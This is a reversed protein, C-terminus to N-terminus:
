FAVAISFHLRADPQGKGRAYDLALPGVPSRWRAGLGYGQSIQLEPAVDAAGGVDGFLAVGWDNFWHTYEASATAMVRGGVVANGEAVGLSQFAFGRVTQTGGVRFLYEQPIGLRSRSATYGGEVRLSIADHEALPVWIQYRSYGRVFDQDSLLSKGAGGLRLETLSGKMPFLPNDVARRNWLWDIVLAQDTERIGGQPLRREQQWHLGIGTEIGFVTRSRTVGFKDRLTDLGQIQTKEGSAKWALHYGLPNPPTNLEASMTQRNQELVVSSDLRWAQNLFNYSQYNVENRVGNNTSYGIGLSLKRSQAEIIQVKIPVTVATEGADARTSDSTTDLSVVVSSFQPLNQLQAQFALLLDRRYAQGPKFTAYRSVLSEEYRELGSVRLEGFLHRPGSDVVIHLQASAQARDVQAASEVLRATAYDRSAVQALLDAKAEDWSVARLAMGPQLMWSDRLQQVRANRQAEPLSLDGRFEVNVATVLTRSGVIVELQLVGAQSITGLAVKGSFFGETALLEPIERQARRMFAAQEIENTLLKEPLVFHQALLERVVEPAILNVAPTNGAKALAPRPQYLCVCVVVFLCARLTDRLLLRQLPLNLQSM